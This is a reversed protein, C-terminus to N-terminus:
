SFWFEDNELIVGALLLMKLSSFKDRAPTIKDRCPPKNHFTLKKLESSRRPLHVDSCRRGGMMNDVTGTGKNELGTEQCVSGFSKLGM